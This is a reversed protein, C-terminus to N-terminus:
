RRIRAASLPWSWCSREGKLAELALYAELGANRSRRKNMDQDGREQLGAFTLDNSGDSNLKKPHLRLNDCIKVEILLYKLRFHYFM